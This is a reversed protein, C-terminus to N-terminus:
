CIVFHSEGPKPDERIVIRTDQAYDSSRKDETMNMLEEFERDSRYFIGDAVQGYFDLFSDYSDVTAEIITGSPYILRVPVGQEGFHWAASVAFELFFDRKKLFEIDQEREPVNAAQMLITVRRKEMRDPVRTMLTGLRASVKWNISNLADGKQYSRIDSGPADEYIKNSKLGTSNILNELELASSAVDTIQPSVVARFNYPIDFEATFINFPDTFAVRKIGVDYSGAYKCSIGSNLEKKEHIDLSLSQGNEIEYLNCRDDYIFMQMNHVPLFGANEITARYNHDEGRTLKHVEIEQFIRLFRFNLFIYVASFPVLLLVAYLWAFSVPGGYFSAFVLSAAVVILHIIMGKKNVSINM